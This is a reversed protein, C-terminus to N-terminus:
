TARLLRAAWGVKRVDVMNVAVVELRAGQAPQARLAEQLKRTLVLAAVDIFAFGAQTTAPGVLDVTWEAHALIDEGDVRRPESDGIEVEFGDSRLKTLIVERIAKTASRRGQTTSLFKWAAEQRTEPSMSALVSGEPTPVTRLAPLQGRQYGAPEPVKDRDLLSLATKPDVAAILATGANVEELYADELARQEAGVQEAADSLMLGVAVPNRATTDVPVAPTAGEPMPGSRLEPIDGDFQIREMLAAEYNPNLRPRRKGDPDHVILGQPDAESAPVAPLQAERLPALAEFTIDEIRKALDPRSALLPLLRAMADAEGGGAAKVEALAAAFEPVENTLRETVARLAADVEPRFVSM